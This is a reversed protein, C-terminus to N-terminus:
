VFERAPIDRHVDEDRAVSVAVLGSTVVDLFVGVSVLLPAIPRLILYGEELGRGYMSCLVSLAVYVGIGPVSGLAFSVLFSFLAVWGAQLVTIELSSYSKLILVFAAGTVLATGARGFLAFFPFSASGVRRPVGLSEHGHKLLTALSFYQDGSLFAVISPGILGYLWKYPTDSRRHLIMLIPYAAFVVVAADIGLIILVERFLQLDAVQRLRLVYFAALAISGIGLIEVVFSNIQYLIRAVSDFVQAAPRTVLRDFTFNMGFFVSLVFLPLLYSGAGTFVQFLNPPFISRLVSRFSPLSLAQEQEIIIPIRQPSLLFISGIGILTLLATTLMLYLLMRLYVRGLQRDQRLEYTGIVLSFFVVPPIAYRGINIILEFVFDLADAATIDEPAFLGIGLGVLTGILLKIWIRM